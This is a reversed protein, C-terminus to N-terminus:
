TPIVIAVSALTGKVALLAMANGGFHAVIGPYLKAYSSLLPAVMLAGVGIAFELAAYCHLPKGGRSAWRGFIFSGLGLGAFYAALITATAPAGSGFLLAFQRQWIVEYVLAIAGSCFFLCGLLVSAVRHQAPM